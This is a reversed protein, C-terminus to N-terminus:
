ERGKKKRTENNEISFYWRFVKMNFRSKKEGEGGGFDM